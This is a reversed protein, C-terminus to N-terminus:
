ELVPHAPAPPRWGLAPAIRTAILELMRLTQAITPVGPNVQCLLDTALPLVQEGSLAEVIEDPHGYFAHFRDLAADLDLGAPFRGNRVMTATAQMVGPGLIARAEARDAAPVILRSLGIRPTRGAKVPDARWHELYREAWPRQVLDTRTEFGYAARNLLLHSGAEAAFRAGEDSFIGQWVRHALGPARPHLSHGAAGFVGDNFARDLLAIGDSTARRRSEFSAGFAEFATEDYGSGIGLEVRGGSLVDLTAADEALRLPSELPVTIVATGLRLRSTREAVAALFLLPSAAAGPGNRGSAFHHQAVWGVEFGLQEAAVFLEVMGRFLAPPPLPGELHTLFGLRFRSPPLGDSM